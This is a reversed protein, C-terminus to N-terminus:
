QSEVWVPEGDIGSARVVGADTLLEVHLARAPRPRQGEQQAIGIEVVGDKLVARYTTLLYDGELYGFGEGADEYLRGVVAGKADLAVILTLPGEFAKDSTQGGPGVPLIAGDRLRLVPHATDSVPDEGALTFSRWHGKPMAFAHTEAKLLQPQVLVDGGLLFAHDEQRLSLDAPDAFFLPRVVPLGIALAVLLGQLVWEPVIFIEGILEAVQAILWVIVIYKTAAELVGRRKLEKLINQPLWPATARRGSHSPENKSSRVERVLTQTNMTRDEETCRERQSNRQKCTM